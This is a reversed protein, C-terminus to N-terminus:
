QTETEFFYWVAVEIGLGDEELVRAILPQQQKRSSEAAAAAAAAAVAKAVAM